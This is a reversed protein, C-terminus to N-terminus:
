VYTPIDSPSNSRNEYSWDFISFVILFQTIEVLASSCFAVHNWKGKYVGNLKISQMLIIM